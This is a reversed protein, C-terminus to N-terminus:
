LVVGDQFVKRFPEVTMEAFLGALAYPDAAFIARAQALNAAEIVLVSGKPRGDEGLRPGGYVPKSAAAQWYDLHAPRTALRLELSQPKDLAILIFLM